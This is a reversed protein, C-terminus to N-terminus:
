GPSIYNYRRTYSKKHVLNNGDAKMNYKYIFVHMYIL